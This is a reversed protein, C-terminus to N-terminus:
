NLPCNEPATFSAALASFDGNPYVANFMSIVQAPTYGSQLASANLLADVTARALMNIGGGNAQLAQLLTPDTLPAPKGKASWNITIVPGFIASFLDTPHYTVYSSFHQSQKWYGPSCYQVAQTNTITCTQTQGAAVVVGSCMNSTQTWGSMSSETVSYTGPTVEYNMSATTSITGAGGGTITGTGTANVTFVTTNGSPVTVKNVILHGKQQTNTFTCTVTEGAAVNFTANMSPVSGVSDSDDCTVSTLDWGTTPTETSVYQGASVASSITGNNTSITGSPTGTFAFSGTGGVMVKKVIVMGQKTNTFVCNVTHGAVLTISAPNISTTGDMCTASTQVWGTTPTEAVSYSGADLTQDNPTAADTLSFGTYGTGTTTFNFSQPDGSPVTVKDVIIHGKPPTVTLIESQCASTASANNVDGSYVAQWYFTGATNFTIPDSDPVVGSAVTKVGGSMAGLSCANDTYATYTVTGGANSSANTLASSDHAQAGQLITSASLTTAISPTFQTVTLPECGADGAVYNADGNYHAKFSYSGASLPGENSSMAMGSVLAIGTGAPTAGTTCAGDTYFTFDATGTPTPGTGTVTVKDHVTSNAPVSTVVAESPNHIETVVTPTLQTATLPECAGDAVLYNSDGNYHAKYSLGGSTVTATNSTAVGSVLAVGAQTTPTSSCTTNPYLNFDVTGTVAPGGSVGTVTVQDHVSSGIPASTITANSSNQVNTTVVPTHVVIRSIGTAASVVGVTDGVSDHATGGSYNTTATVRRAGGSLVEDSSAVTYSVLASTISPVGTGGIRPVSGLGTVTGHPDTLTWTGSEFACNTGGAWSLTAQYKILEGDAVTGGGSIPTVGDARYVSLSIAAGTSTCGSPDIDAKAPAVFVAFSFVLMSVMAASFAM